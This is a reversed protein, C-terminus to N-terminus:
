RRTEEEPGRFTVVLDGPELLTTDKAPFEVVGDRTRRIIKYKVDLAQLAGFQVKAMVKILDAAADTEQAAEGVGRRAEAEEQQTNTAAQEKRAELDRLARNLQEQAQNTVNQSEQGREEADLLETQAQLLFPRGISGDDALKSLHKVRDRRLTIAQQLLPSAAERLELQSRASDIAGKLAAEDAILAHKETNQVTFEEDMMMQAKDRGVIAGLEGSDPMVGTTRVGEIANSRAMMRVARDVASRLRDTERVLQAVVSPDVPTREFGGALAIVQLVTTGPTFEYSGPNRVEGVVFVPPRAINLVNVFGSRGLFAVLACELQHKLKLSSEGEVVFRGLLPIVISGDDQVVYENSLESHEQFMRLPEQYHEHDAGWKQDVSKLVEYFSLKIKDRRGITLGKAGEDEIQNAGCNEGGAADAAQERPTPQPPAAQDLGIPPAATRAPQQATLNPADLNGDGVSSPAVLGLLGAIVSSAIANITTM